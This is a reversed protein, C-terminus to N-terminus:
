PANRPSPWDERVLAYLVHDQWAGDICLFKRAYGERRFGVKELLRISAANHPLCAAEIRHLRLAEFAFPVAARVADTMLGQGAFREGMWYGLSTAQAVGRRVNSFTLGGVLVGTDLLFIFFPYAADARIERIYRKLRRRYASRLLDDAPWTPEWPSLFARSEGRLRAWEAHDSLTPTRLRVREGVISPLVEAGVPRLFSLPRM